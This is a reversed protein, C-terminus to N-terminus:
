VMRNSQLEQVLKQLELNQKDLMENRKILADIQEQYTPPLPEPNDLIVTTYYESEVLSSLWFAGFFPIILALLVHTNYSYPARSHKDSTDRKFLPDPLFGCGAYYYREYRANKYKRSRHIVYLAHVLHLLTLAILIYFVQM